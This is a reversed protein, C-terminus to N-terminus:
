DSFLGKSMDLVVFIIIFLVVVVSFVLITKFYILILFKKFFQYKSHTMNLFSCGLNLFFVCIILERVDM